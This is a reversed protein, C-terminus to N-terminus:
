LGTPHESFSYDPNEYTTERAECEYEDEWGQQNFWTSGHKVFKIPIQKLSIEAKYAEIGKVITERNIGSKRAKVYAKLASAKGKKNPYLKWVEEFENNFVSNRKIINNEKRLKNDESQPLVSLGGGQQCPPQEKDVLHQEKDVLHQTKYNATNQRAQNLRISSVWFKQKARLINTQFDIYQILGKNKLWYLANDVEKTTAGIQEAIHEKGAFLVKYKGFVECWRIYMYVFFQVTGFEVGGELAERIFIPELVYYGEETEAQQFRKSKLINM